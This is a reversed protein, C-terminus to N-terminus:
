GIARRDAVPAVWRTIAASYRLELVRSPGTLGALDIGVEGRSWQGAGEDSPFLGTFRALDLPQRKIGVLVSADVLKVGMQRRDDTAVATDAPTATAVHLTAAMAGDPLAFRLLGAESAMESVMPAIVVGDVMLAAEPADTTAFGNAIVRDRLAARVADLAAGRHVLPACREVGAPAAFNPHLAVLAGGNAFMSRNGDSIYSEATLGEAILVDHSDLEIHFYTVHRAKTDRRVSVGNVLYKAEILVGDVYIAHDPSVALERAPKNDGFAGARIRVPEVLTRDAHRDLAISRHGIWRIARRAATGNRATIVQDGVALAEVAVEGHSTLIRTGEVFCPVQITIGNPGVTNYLTNQPTTDFTGTLHLTETSISGGVTDMVTLEGTAANFSLSVDATSPPTPETSNGLVIQDNPGFGAITGGFGLTNGNVNLVNPALTTGHTGFDVTLSSDNGTPNALTVQAGNDIFITGNGAMSTTDTLATTSGTVAITGNDTVATGGISATGTPITVTEGTNILTGPSVGGTWNTGTFWSTSTGGGSFTFNNTQGPMTITIGGSGITDALTNGPNTDFTGTLHLTETSVSGAVTSSVTLENTTSNYNLSIDNASTPTPETSSGLVIQDNTGFGNITGGFGLTNGNVDFVNPALTTGHTGFDVTLSSDNGTPNALTVHAGNDIFITGNGAMSTTDTLATTSGTVAITGNDTVATGGISATGTPITVTEGTNILTGPSVGGTWNTGTFWSTSTGGGTFTYTKADATLVETTTGNQTITSADFFPAISGALTIIDKTTGNTTVLETVGNVVTTGINAAGSFGQVDITQGAGFGAVSGAFSGPSSLALTNNIGGNFLVEEKAAVTGLVAEGANSIEIYGDPTTGANATVPKDAVSTAIFTGGNALVWGENYFGVTDGATTPSTLNIGVEGGAAADIEGYNFLAHANQVNGGVAIVVNLTNGAGSAGLFGFNHNVDNFMATDLGTATISMNTDFAPTASPAAVGSIATGGAALGGTGGPRGLAVGQLTLTAAQTLDISQGDLQYDQYTGPYGALYPQKVIIVDATNVGAETPSITPGATVTGSVIVTQLATSSDVPVGGNWDNGGFWYGNNGGNTWTTSAM